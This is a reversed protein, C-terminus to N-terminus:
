NGREYPLRRKSRRHRGAWVAVVVVPSFSFAFRLKKEADARPNGDAYLACTYTANSPTTELGRRGAVGARLFHM